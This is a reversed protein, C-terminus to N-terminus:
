LPQSDRIYVARDLAKLAKWAPTKMLWHYLRVHHTEGKTRGTKDSRKSM